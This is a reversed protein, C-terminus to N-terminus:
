RKRMNFMFISIFWFTGLLTCFILPFQDLLIELDRRLPGFNDDNNMVLDTLHWTTLVLGCLYIYFIIM